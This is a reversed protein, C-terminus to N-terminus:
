LNSAAAFLFRAIANLGEQPWVRVGTQGAICGGPRAEEGGSVGTAASAPSRPPLDSPLARSRAKSPPAARSEQGQQEYCEASMAESARGKEGWPAAEGERSM